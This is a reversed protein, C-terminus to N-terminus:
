LADFERRAADRDFFAQIRVIMRDRFTYIAGGKLEIEIGDRGLFYEDTLALV